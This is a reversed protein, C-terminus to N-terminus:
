AILGIQKFDEILEDRSWVMKIDVIRPAQRNWKQMKLWQKHKRPEHSGPIGFERMYFKNKYAFMLDPLNTLNSSRKKGGKFTSNPIHLFQVKCQKLIDEAYNQMLDKEPM